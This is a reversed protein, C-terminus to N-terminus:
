VGLGVPRPQEAYLASATSKFGSLEGSQAHRIADELLFSSYSGLLLNRVIAYSISNADGPHQYEFVKVGSYNRSRINREDIESTLSQIFEENGKGSFGISFLFDFEN